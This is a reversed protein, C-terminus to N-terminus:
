LNYTFNFFQREHKTLFYMNPTSVINSNLFKQMVFYLPIRNLLIIGVVRGPKNKIISPHKNVLFNIVVTERVILLVKQDKSLNLV